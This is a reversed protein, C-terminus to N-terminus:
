IRSSAFDQCERYLSDLKREIVRRVKASRELSSTYGKRFEIIRRRASELRESREKSDPWLSSWYACTRCHM